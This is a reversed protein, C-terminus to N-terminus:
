AKKKQIFKNAAYAVGAAIGAFGAWKTYHTIGREINIHIHWREKDTNKEFSSYGAWYPKFFQKFLKKGTAEDVIAGTARNILNGDKALGYLHSSDLVGGVDKNEKENRYSSTERFIYNPLYREMFTNLYNEVIMENLRITIPNKPPKAM